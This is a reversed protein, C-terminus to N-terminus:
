NFYDRNIEVCVSKLSNNDLLQLLIPCPPVLVNELKITRNAQKEFVFYTEFLFYLLYESDPFHVYKCILTLVHDM